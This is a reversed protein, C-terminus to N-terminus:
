LGEHTSCRERLWQMLASRTSYYHGRPTVKTVPLGITALERLKRNPSESLPAHIGLMDLIADSGVIIEDQAMTLLYDLATTMTAKAELIQKTAILHDALTRIDTMTLRPSTGSDCLGVLSQGPYSGRSTKDGEDLAEYEARARRVEEMWEAYDNDADYSDDDFM